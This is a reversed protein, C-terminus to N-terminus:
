YLCNLFLAVNNTFTHTCTYTHTNAHTHSSVHMSEHPWTPICFHAEFSIKHKRNKNWVYNYNNM